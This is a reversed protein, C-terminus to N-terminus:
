PQDRLPMSARHEMYPQQQKKTGLVSSLTKCMSFLGKTASCSVLGLAATRDAQLHVHRRRQPRSKKGKKWCLSM